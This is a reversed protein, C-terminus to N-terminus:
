SNVARSSPASWPAPRTATPITRLASATGGDCFRCTFGHCDDSGCHPCLRSKEFSEPDLVDDFSNGVLALDSEEGEDEEDAPEWLLPADTLSRPTSTLDNEFTLIVYGGAISRAVVVGHGPVGWAHTTDVEDLPLLIYRSGPKPVRQEQIANRFAPPFRVGLRREAIRLQSAAALALVSM